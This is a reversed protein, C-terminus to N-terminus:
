VRAVGSPNEIVGEVSDDNIIRFEKDWIKLRTGAYASMLIWDKRKCWPGSPFKSKDLYCDPGMDLVYGVISAASEADRREEPIIIGGDTKEKVEPLAILLHYGAPTPLQKGHKAEYKRIDIPAKDEYQINPM